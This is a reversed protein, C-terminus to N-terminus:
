QELLYTALKQNKGHFVVSVIEALQYWRDIFNGGQKCDIAAWGEKAAM